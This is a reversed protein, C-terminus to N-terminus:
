PAIARGSGIWCPRMMPWCRARKTMRTAPSARRRCRVNGGLGQHEGRGSRIELEDKGQGRDQVAQRVLRRDDRDAQDSTVGAKDPGQRDPLERLDPMTDTAVGGAAAHQLLAMAGCGRWITTRSTAIFSSNAPWNSACGRRMGTELDMAESPGIVEVDVRDSKTRVVPYKVPGNKAAHWM